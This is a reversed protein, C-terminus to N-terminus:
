LFYVTLSDAEPFDPFIDDEIRIGINAYKKVVPEVKAVFEDIEEDTVKLRYARLIQHLNDLNPSLSHLQHGAYKLYSYYYAPQCLNQARVMVPNTHM